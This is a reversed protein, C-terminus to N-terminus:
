PFRLGNNGRALWWLLLKVGGWSLYGSDKMTSGYITLFASKPMLESVVGGAKTCKRLIPRNIADDNHRLILKTESTLIEMNRVDDLSKIGFLANDAIALTLLFAADNYIFKEHEKGAAGFSFQLCHTLM